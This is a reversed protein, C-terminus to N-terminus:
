IVDAGVCWCGGEDKEQRVKQVYMVVGGGAVVMLALSAWSVPQPHLFLEPALILGCCM